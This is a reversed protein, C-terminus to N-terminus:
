KEFLAEKLSCIFGNEMKLNMYSINIQSIVTLCGALKFVLLKIKHGIANIIIQVM